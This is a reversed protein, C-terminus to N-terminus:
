HSKIEPNKPPEIRSTVREILFPYRGEKDPKISVAKQTYPNYIVLSKGSITKIIGRIQKKKPNDPIFTVPLQANIIADVSLSDINLDALNKPKEIYAIVKYM